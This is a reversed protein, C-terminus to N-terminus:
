KSCFLLMKCVGGTYKIGPAGLHKNIALTAWFTEDPSFTDRTWRLVDQARDDTLAFKVFHRSFAGYASGKGVTINHPPPEKQQGTGEMKMTEKNVRYTENIRYYTGENYVSEISSTGNFLKLIEVIEANTKLPYEQAPLNILYKWPVDTKILDTMCNIDAQLRSYEEYIVNELKSAIFANPLCKTIAKMANLLDFNSSRDIHICYVNQPRYIARLLMEIQVSDKHAILSYAIPFGLEEQSVIFRKYDFIKFFTTCNKALEHMEKDSPFRYESRNQLESTFSLELSDGEIIRRCNVEFILRKPIPNLNTNYTLKDFNHKIVIIPSELTASEEYDKIFVNKTKVHNIIIVLAM